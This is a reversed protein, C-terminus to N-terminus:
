PRGPAPRDHRPRATRRRTYMASHNLIPVSKKVPKDHRRKAHKLVRDAGIICGPQRVRRERASAAPTGRREHDIRRAAQVGPAVPLPFVVQAELIGGDHHRASRCGGHISSVSIEGEPEGNSGYIISSTASGAEPTAPDQAAVAGASNALLAMVVILVSLYRRM